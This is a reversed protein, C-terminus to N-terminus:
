FKSLHKPNKQPPHCAFDSSFSLIICSNLLIVVNPPGRSGHRIQMIGYSGNQIGSVTRRSTHLNIQEEFCERNADVTYVKLLSRGAVVVKLNNRCLSLANVAAGVKARIVRKRTADSELVMTEPHM